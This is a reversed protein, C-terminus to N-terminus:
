RNPNYYKDFTEKAMCEHNAQNNRYITGCVQANDQQNQNNSYLGWIRAINAADAQAASRENEIAMQRGAEDRADFYANREAQWKRWIPDAEPLGSEAASRMMAIGWEPNWAMNVGYWNFEGLIYKAYPHGADAAREFYRVARPRDVPVGQGDYYMRALNFAAEGFGAESLTEFGALALEHNGGDFAAKALLYRQEAPLAPPFAQEVREFAILEAYGVSGAGTDRIVQINNCSSQVGGACARKYSKVALVADVAMGRGLQAMFGLSACGANIDLACAQRYLSVAKADDRPVLEGDAYIWGANACGLGDRYSCALDFAQVALPGNVATGEGKHHAFGLNLCGTASGLKCARDAYTLAGPYDRPLSEAQTLAIAVNSCAQAGVGTKDKDCVLRWIKLAGAEDVPLGSGTFLDRGHDVCHALDGKGAKCQKQSYQALAVPDEADQAEAPIATHLWAVAFGVLTIRVKGLGIM